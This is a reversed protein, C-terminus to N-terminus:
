ECGKTRIQSWDVRRDMLPIAALRARWAAELASPTTGLYAATKQLGQQWIRRIAASGYREHVFALFSASEAYIVVDDTDAYTYQLLTDLPVLRGEDGLAAALQHLGYSGCRGPALTGMGEVIWAEPQAPQGWVGFSLVHM